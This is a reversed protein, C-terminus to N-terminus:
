EEVNKSEDLKISAKVTVTRMNLKVKSNGVNCDLNRQIQFWTKIM